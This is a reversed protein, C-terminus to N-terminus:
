GHLYTFIRQALARGIGPTAAIQAETAHEIGKMGGFHRLLSQIKKAGLGEVEELPSKLGGKSRRKRHYTNVFRHAEDRAYVLVRSKRDLKVSDVEPRWLTEEKKALAAISFRDGLGHSTLMTHVHKLHTEGGDLLLLDPWEKQNKLWREVVEQMMRLDDDVETKIQYTRYEKKSPRGNRFVISAGVKEKGQIQAMDFCVIHNLSELGHTKAAQDAAAQGLSGSRNIAQRTAQIEANSDAMRRLKALEGRQPNRISVKKGRRESLWVNMSDTLPIPVLLTKPPRHNLYHESLVLSVSALIDGRHIVPYGVQGQIVGDQAHLILVVAVEGDSSFGVADCEQYFRSHIVQQSLTTNVAVILDRKQAANEYDFKASAADMEQQLAEILVGANGDLVSIVTNVLNEYGEPNVCPGKCLGIHSAMCGDKGRCDKDRIGFQTRLIHIVKKAAGADPFPGWIRSTKSPRRTYEIRPYKEDTICIYPFSKDDKLLSNYKPKYKKILQRELILAESPNQTVIIEIDDSKSLLKPVMERKDSSGFYSGVRSRLNTAKGVYNVGGDGGKFLYVGPKRPLDLSDPNVAM